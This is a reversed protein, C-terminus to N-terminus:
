NQINKYIQLETGDTRVYSKGDKIAYGNNFYTISSEIEFVLEGSENMVGLVQRGQEADYYSVKYFKETLTDFSNGIRPEFMFKGNEDIVTYKTGEATQMLIGAYGGIM